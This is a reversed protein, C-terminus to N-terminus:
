LIFNNNRIMHLLTMRKQILFMLIQYILIKIVILMDSNDSNVMLVPRLNHNLKENPVKEDNEAIGCCEFAKM